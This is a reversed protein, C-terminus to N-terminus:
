PATAPTPRRRYPRPVNGRVTFLLTAWSLLSFTAFVVIASAEAGPAHHTVLLAAVATVAAGLTAFFGLFLLVLGYAQAPQTYLLYLALAGLPIVIELDIFHVLHFATPATGGAGGATGGVAMVELLEGTWMLAFLALFAVMFMVYARPGRQSFAHADASTFLPLTGALVATAMVVQLVFLGAFHESNGAYVPNSWELGFGVSFASYYVTLPTLVLLYKGGLRGQLLLAAGLVLLPVILAVNVLDTGAILWVASPSTRYQIAGTGLPGWAAKFLLAAAEILAAAAIAKPPVVPPEQAPAHPGDLM